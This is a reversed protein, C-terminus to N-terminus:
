LSNIDLNYRKHMIKIKEIIDIFKYGERENFSIEGKFYECSLTVITYYTYKPSGEVYVRKTYYSNNKYRLDPTGDKCSHEWVKVYKYHANPYTTTYDNRISCILKDWGIINFQNNFFDRIIIYYKCFYITNIGNLFAFISIIKSDTNQSEISDKRHDVVINHKRQYERCFKQIQELLNNFM